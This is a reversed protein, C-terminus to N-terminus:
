GVLKGENRVAFITFAMLIISVLLIITIFVMNWHLYYFLIYEVVSGMFFSIMAIRWDQMSMLVSCFGLLLLFGIEMTIGNNLFIMNFVSLLDMFM